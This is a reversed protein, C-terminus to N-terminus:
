ILYGSIASPRCFAALEGHNVGVAHVSQKPQAVPRLEDMDGGGHGLVAGFDVLQEGTARVGIGPIGAAARRQMVGGPVVGDALDRRRQELGPGIDFGAVAM